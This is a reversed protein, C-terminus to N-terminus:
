QLAIKKAAFVLLDEMTPEGWTQLALWSFFQVSAMKSTPGGRKMSSRLTPTPISELFRDFTETQVSASLESFYNKAEAVRGLSFKEKLVTLEDETTVAKAASPLIQQSSGTRPQAYNKDLAGRFYAAVNDVRSLKTNKVRKETNRSPRACGDKM